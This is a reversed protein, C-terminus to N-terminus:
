ADITITGAIIDAKIQELEAKTEASVKSDFDHFPALYAGENELTGVYLENSFDDEVSAKIAEFVALDMAKGVSTAIVSKYNPMSVTGDTDVWMGIVKGGSAQAVQLGGEGAPGAVPLIVDAGQSVLTEAVRKGGALDEFGNSGPIFQGDQAESSWGLVEVNTGKKENHYAVGQAYGEMFATVSPIKAGGFTGVKGTQSLSAAVYGAMFAPEGTNFVIGRLNEPATNAGSEDSYAFDVIAFDVDPNAKAAALTADGLLFGVTVVINCGANVMQDINTAFDATTSSQAENQKVGLEAVAKKLGDHSTQNFSKDDFGGADSVMCATFDSAGPAAAASSAGGASPAPAATNAPPPTACGALLVAAALGSGILTKKM